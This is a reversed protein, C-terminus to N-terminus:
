ATEGAKTSPLPGLAASGEALSCILAAEAAGALPVAPVGNKIDVKLAALSAADLVARLRRDEYIVRDGNVALEWPDGQIKGEFRGASRRIFGNADSAFSAESLHLRQKDRYPAGSSPCFAACNGCENCFDGINFVQWPQSLSNRAITVIRVGTDTAVAEQIPWSRESAPVLLNARNPCVSVCLGCFRDCQLCRSSELKVNAESAKGLSQERFAQKRRLSAIDLPNSFYPRVGSGLGLWSLIVHAARRGEGVSAVLSLASAEGNGNGPLNQKFLNHKQVSIGEEAGLLRAEEGSVGTALYVADKEACLASLASEDVIKGTHLRVGIGLIADVDRAIRESERAMKRLITGGAKESAEFVEVDCGALALFYACSLGATGAGVVAAKRGSNRASVSRFTGLEAACGKVDRIRLPEDYHQRICKTRCAQNCLKGLVNPFPNTALIVALSGDMDGEAARELYASIHQGAPCVSMCPASACDLAPLPRTTKVDPNGSPSKAYRTREATVAAAYTALNKLIANKYNSVGSKAKAFAELSSAGAEKMAARLNAVYQALRGYGGPKLLDSCVTVPTLGCALTDAVNLADVGACFSVDLGGGFDTQLREALAIAIPHLPRGSMYVMAESAPLSKGFNSTELTNTLKISFMLGLRAAAERCTSLIGIAKDYPLDHEFAIDPVEISYGLTKNLIGRVCKPGLLTPNMKLTTNLRRGELFYLAIKEVEEPPCGHMCSITLNDSMCGPISLEAARPYIASLRVKMAEVDASCNQMRDLFRQVTPSLIGEMSYGASMNFIMGPAGQFGLRDHLIHLLVWAKLYEEYSKDLSLEQSWECNYGEDEMDICPKAVTIQDLVQVTKLEMYRAGCLWAAVINQAMQTHPGAAVGLPTELAVGYRKLRFPDDSGPIFFLEKVIGLASGNELDRLIWGLLQEADMCHMHDTSM